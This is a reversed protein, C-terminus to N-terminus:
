AAKKKTATLLRKTNAKKEEKKNKVEPYCGFFWARIECYSTTEADEIKEGNEDLGVLTRLVEIAEIETGDELVLTQPHLEIYKKMYDLTLGKYNEKSKTKKTTVSFTPYDKRAIQLMNYEDTGFYKAKKAFEKTMEITNAATNITLRTNMM